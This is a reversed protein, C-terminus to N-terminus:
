ITYFFGPQGELNSLKGERALRNRRMFTFSTVALLVLTLLQCGITAWIGNLYRPFDEQRYVTTAFIGGIGGFAVVIATSVARKSHSVINNASYALIAPICASAGANAIFLGLYRVGNQKAYATLVLGVLTIVTAIAIFIARKKTRDSIWAFAFCVIAAFCYPPSSLLFSDRLGWGMSRLIITIFYGIAYAPMTTNMFMLAYAWMTWDSLHHLVKALTLKDPIADGRDSEVRSLVLKTQEESLFKNKDPFEPIYLFAVLGLAITIAGEIIFIWRWAEIGGKGQLLTLAYGFIPSFGGIVVSFLFFFALRKQVEHRKYWTTIIFVMAPFFGAEFIGLLIRTLLLYAWTPVFGMGLQTAGWGVVCITMWSRVGLWRLIINSPLQLLIYPVFYMCSVISYREGVTLKLDVAMGAVYAIGLNTRDILAVAYLIGLLPLIRRDVHRITQREFEQSFQHHVPEEVDEGSRKESLSPSM